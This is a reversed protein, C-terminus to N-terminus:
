LVSTHEEVYALRSKPRDFLNEEDDSLMKNMEGDALAAYCAESMARDPFTMETIVDYEPELISGDLPYPIPYLFRRKYSVMNALFPIALKAHVNEYHDKFQDMTMGARRKFLGIVTFM